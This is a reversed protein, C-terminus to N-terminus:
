DPIIPEPYCRCNYIQGAHTRTGDSLLPPDAWAVVKGNMEKHAHRVDGDGSTRWIYHTSGVQEARSQTLTSATRAVETRAILTAKSASVEGSRRIERAIEAARTSDELGKLTLDHVRRAADLPISKILTVQEALLERQLEGTQTHKLEYRLAKSMEEANRAWMAVDQKNVAALMSAGTFTAWQTLAESYATLLQTIPAVSAPDGAPFGNILHGIHQAVKRM